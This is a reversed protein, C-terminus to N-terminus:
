PGIVQYQHNGSLLLVESRPRSLIVDFHDLVDRGLISYDM